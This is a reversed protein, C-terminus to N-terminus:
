TGTEMLNGIIGPLDIEIVRFVGTAHIADNEPGALM